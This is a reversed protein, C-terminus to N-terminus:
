KLNKYFEYNGISSEIYRKQEYYNEPYLRESESKFRSMLSTPIISSKEIAELEKQSKQNREETEKEFEVKGKERIELEITKRLNNYDGIEEVIKANQKIFNTGYMSNLRHRIVKQTEIDIGSEMIKKDMKEYADIQGKVQDEADKGAYFKYADNEIEKRIESPIKALSQVGSVFLILFLLIKKM